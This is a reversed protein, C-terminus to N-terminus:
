FLLTTDYFALIRIFGKIDDDQLIDINDSSFLSYM